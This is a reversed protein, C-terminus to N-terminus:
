VALNLHVDIVDWPVCLTGEGTKELLGAEALTKADTHVNKYNRELRTALARISLPGNKRLVRLVELRCPSLVTLLTSISEFNLRVEPETILGKEAKKWASKFRGAMQEPSETGIHIHRKNM